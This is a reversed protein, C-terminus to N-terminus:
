NHQRFRLLTFVVNVESGRTGTRVEPAQYRRDIASPSCLGLNVDDDYCTYGQRLWAFAFFVIYSPSDFYFMLLSIFIQVAARNHRLNAVTISITQLTASLHCYSVVYFFSTM